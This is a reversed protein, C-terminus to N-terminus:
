NGFRWRFNNNEYEKRSYIRPELGEGDIVISSATHMFGENICENIYNIDLIPILTRIKHIKSNWDIHSQKDGFRDM